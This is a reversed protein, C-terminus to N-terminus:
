LHIPKSTKNKFWLFFYFKKCLEQMNKISLVCVCLEQM